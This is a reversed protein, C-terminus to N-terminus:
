WPLQDQKHFYGGSPGDDPLTALWVSTQAGETVDMPAGEGGLETKVWGPHAANVKIKTSALERALQVTYMNVAAKSAGYAAAFGSAGYVPSSPNSALELSGLISSLQVIRGAPSKHLLPLFAQTVAVLGFLNTEFTWRWHALDEATTPRDFTGLGANNVLVDLKGFAAEIQAVAAAISQTDTVDLALARVDGALTAAAAQGRELDRSGLFVTIGQAALQRATELGIGKNAGTVLAVINNNGMGEPVSVWGPLERVM